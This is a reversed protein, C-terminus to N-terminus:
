FRPTNGPGFRVAKCGEYLATQGFEVRAEGKSEWLTFTGDSYRTGSASPARPLTVTRDPLFLVAEAGGPDYRASIIGGNTCRYAAARGSDSGPPACASLLLILLVPAYHRRPM